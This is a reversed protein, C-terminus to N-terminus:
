NTTQTHIYTTTVLVHPINKVDELLIILENFTPKGHRSSADAAASADADNSDPPLTSTSNFHDDHILTEPDLIKGLGSRRLSEGHLRKPSTNSTSSLLKQDTPETTSAQVAPGRQAQAKIERNPTSFLLNKSPPAHAHSDSQDVDQDKGDVPAAPKM